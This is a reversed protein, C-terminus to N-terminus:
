LLPFFFFPLDNANGFVNLTLSLHRHSPFFSWKFRRALMLAQLLLTALGPLCVQDNCLPVTFCLYLQRQPCAVSLLFHKSKTRYVKLINWKINWYVKAGKGALRQERKLRLYLIWSLTRRDAEIKLLCTGTVSRHLDGPVLEVISALSLFFIRWLAWRCQETDFYKELDTDRDRFENSSIGIHDNECSYTDRKLASLPVSSADEADGLM